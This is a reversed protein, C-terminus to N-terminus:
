HSGTAIDYVTAAAFVLFLSGGIYQATVESIFNSLLSGGAVAIGTALGHGLVAGSIVGAPDSAAALAITALFSKDGWEAAFVLSFTSLVLAGAAGAGAFLLDLPTLHLTPSLVSV